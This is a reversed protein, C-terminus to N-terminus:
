TTSLVAITISNDLMDLYKKATDNNTKQKIENIKISILYTLYIGVISLVPYVVLEFTPKLIDTWNM